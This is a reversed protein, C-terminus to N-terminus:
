ELVITNQPIKSTKIKPSSLEYYKLSSIQAIREDIEPEFNNNSILLITLKNLYTNEIPVIGNFSNNGLSLETLSTLNGIEFPIEGVM